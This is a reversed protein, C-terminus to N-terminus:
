HRSSLRRMTALWCFAGVGALSLLFWAPIGQGPAPTATDTAPLGFAAYWGALTTPIDFPGGPVVRGDAEVAFANAFDLGHGPALVLIWRTGVPFVQLAGAIPFTLQTAAPGKFVQAVQFVYSGAPASAVQVLAIRDAGKALDTLTEACGTCAAAPAPRTLGFAAIVALVGVLVVVRRM